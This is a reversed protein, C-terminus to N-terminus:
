RSWPTTPREQRVGDVDIDVRENYFAIYDRVDEAERRVEGPYTWGVDPVPDGGLQASWHVPTGKYACHTVTASAELLESRVDAPPVYWRVPLGTEHLARTSTSDALVVAGDPGDLSIVVHRHTPVVDIRHYPDRVHVYVQEDEEFWADVADWAVRVHGAVAPEPRARDFAVDETPFAYHPMRRSEFVLVTRDSDVVTEDDKVARVRRPFPEVYTVQSPVDFNFHGGPSQGFPGSGM